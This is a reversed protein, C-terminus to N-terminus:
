QSCLVRESPRLEDIGFTGMNIATVLKQFVIDPLSKLKIERLRNTESTKNTKRRPPM